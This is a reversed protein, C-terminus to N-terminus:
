GSAKNHREDACPCPVREGDDSMFGPCAKHLGRACKACVTIPERVYAAKAREQSANWRAIRAQTLAARIQGPNM